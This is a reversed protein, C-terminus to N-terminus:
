SGKCNTTYTGTNEPYEVFSKSWWSSCRQLPLGSTSTFVWARWPLVRRGM